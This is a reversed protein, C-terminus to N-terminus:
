YIVVLHPRLKNYKDVTNVLKGLAISYTEFTEALGFKGKLIRNVSEAIANDYPSQRLSTKIIRFPPPYQNHNAM